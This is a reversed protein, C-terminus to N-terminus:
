RGGNQAVTEGSEAKDKAEAKAKASPKEAGQAGNAAVQAAKAKACGSGESGAAKACPKDCGQGENAAVRAEAKKACGGNEATNSAAKAQKDCALAAGPAAIAVVLAAMAAWVLIRKSNV